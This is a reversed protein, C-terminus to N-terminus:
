SSLSDPRWVGAKREFLRHLIVQLVSLLIGAAILLIEATVLGAIILAINVLFLFILCIGVLSQYRFKKM